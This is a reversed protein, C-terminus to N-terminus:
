IKTCKRAVEYERIKEEFVRWMVFKFKLASVSRFKLANEFLQSSVQGNSMKSSESRKEKEDEENQSM